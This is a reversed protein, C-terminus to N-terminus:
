LFLYYIVICFSLTAVNLKFKSGANKCGMRDDPDSVGPLCQCVGEICDAITQFQASPICQETASFFYTVNFM